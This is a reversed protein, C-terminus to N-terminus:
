RLYYKQDPLPSYYATAVLYTEEYEPLDDAFLPSFASAISPSVQVVLLVILIIIQFKKM